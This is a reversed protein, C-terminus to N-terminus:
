VNFLKQFKMLVPHLSVLVGVVVPLALAYEESVVIRRVGTRVM